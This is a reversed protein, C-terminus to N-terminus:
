ITQQSMIKTSKTFFSFVLPTNSTENTIQNKYLQQHTSAHIRGHTGCQQMFSQTLILHYGNVYVITEHALVLTLSHLLGKLLQTV